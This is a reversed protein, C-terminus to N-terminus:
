LRAALQTRSHIGLKAYVKSLNAEVARVSVFLAAAVEKNSLGQAVLEAVRRETDTLETSPRGSRGPIRALEAAAREAWLAAGLGDFIELAKTAADRAAGRRKARREITAQALLTRGLEFPQPLREHAALAQEIWTRASEEDGRAAAVLARGRAAIAEHWSRKTPRGKEEVYEITVEAEDLRGLAVLAEIENQMVQHLSVEGVGMSRLEASAPALHDLATGANATSLELFGLVARSRISQTRDGISEAIALAREALERAERDRGLHAYVLGLSMMAVCQEQSIGVNQAISLSREAVRTAESWNGARVELDTLRHLVGIQWGAAGARELRDLETGLLPRADDPSDTYTFIMGLQYSPRQYAPYGETRKELELARAMDEHPYPLGLFTLRYCLDALTTALLREDGADQAFRSAQKMHETARLPDGAVSTLIALQIHIAATIAPEGAAEELARECLSISELHSEGLDGLRRLVDAREPGPPTSDLLEELLRHGRATDGAVVHHEAAAGLRRRTEAPGSETLAAAREMLMAATEPAGRAAAAAAADQLERAVDEDPEEVALALHRAREELDTAAQALRRHAERRDWPAASGYAVSALLPHAFRLRDGDHQLVGVRVAEALASTGGGAREILGSRPQTSSAALLLADRADASLSELRERLLDRLSEPIPVGDDGGPSRLIARGIELAYFPNGACVRHLELLRPRPLDLGLRDHLLAGLETAPLPELAVRALDLPARDLGLPPPPTGDSRRALLLRAPSDGIRRFAFALVNATPADLWQVDDVAILLLCAAAVLRLLDAVARGVALRDVPENADARQLAHDLARRQPEPLGGSHEDVVPELLDGLAAFPLSMEGEVPRSVLVTMGRSRAEEVGSLWVTTKGIGAEGDLLVATASEGEHELLRDIAELEARRGVIAAQRGDVDQDETGLPL